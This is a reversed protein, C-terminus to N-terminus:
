LFSLLAGLGGGVATGVGPMIASGLSAGTAAGGLASMMQNKQPGSATSTTTGGPIGQLLSVLDQSQLFPAYQDYNFNGVKENLLSQQLAQQVDGVGSTTVAGTTLNNTTQPALGLAKLQAEVDTNYANNLTSANASALAKSAGTSALGEAVGRRTSGFNGTSEAGSRIQPLTSQLLQDTVNQKNANLQAVVDPRNSVDTAGPALWANSTDAANNALNTQSGAQTLATNQGQTQPDTFGAVTSGQYKQPVTAAFKTIGPMALDLIQQQQPSLVTTTSQTQPAPDSKGM